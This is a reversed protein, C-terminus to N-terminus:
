KAVGKILDWSRKFDAFTAVEISQSIKSPRLSPSLSLLTGNFEASGEPTSLRGRIWDMANIRGLTFITVPDEIDSVAKISEFPDVSGVIALGPRISPTYTVFPRNLRGALGFAAVLANVGQKTDVPPIPVAVFGPAGFSGDISRSPIPGAKSTVVGSLLDSCSSTFAKQDLPGCASVVINSGKTLKRWIDNLDGAKATAVSEKSGQPDIGENGYVANWAKRSTLESTTSLDLERSIAIAERKIAEDSAGCDKLLKGIGKYALNLSNAPLRWEFRLWDRSTSAFLFGGATEIEQDHGPISRAAIHEILHRYGYNNASDPFDRNSLILQVSVYPAERRECFVISGNSLMTKLQNSEQYQSGIQLLLLPIMTTFALPGEM